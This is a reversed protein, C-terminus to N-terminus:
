CRLALLLRVGADRASYDATRLARYLAQCEPVERSTRRPMSVGALVRSPITQPPLAHVPM